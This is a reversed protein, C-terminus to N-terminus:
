RNRTGQSPMVRAAVLGIMERASSINMWWSLAFYIATAATM